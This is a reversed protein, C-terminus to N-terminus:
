DPVYTGMLNVNTNTNLGTAILEVSSGNIASTLTILDVGTMSLSGYVTIISNINNHILLVELAQYGTDDSVKITYKASRYENISFSDIVTNTTVPISPRRSYLDGVKVTSASVNNAIANGVVNLNNRITVLGAVSGIVVNADLGFNIDQLTNFIGASAGSVAIVATGITVCGASSTLYNATVNNTANINTTAINGAITLLNTASNFTFNSSGGFSGNSNYQISNEAGGPLSFDFPQGNAYYYNDTLIGGVLTNGSVSLNGNINAGNNYVNLVSLVGNVSTVVNGNSTITINSNGNEISTFTSDGVVTLQGGQGNTFVLTNADTSITSEGLYITNGALYLNNWRQTSTGISYTINASPLLNGSYTANGPIAINGTLSDFTFGANGVTNGNFNFLIEGTNGVIPNIVDNMDILIGDVELAGDIIIPEVFLGQFNTRVTYSETNPIYYPMPAASNSSSAAFSLNGTGDTVITQGASGGLIKVNSIYNLNSVGNVILGNGVLNGDATITNGVIDLNAFVVVNDEDGVSFGNTSNLPRLAM